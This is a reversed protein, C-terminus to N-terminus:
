LASEWLAFEAARTERLKAEVGDSLPTPLIPSMNKQKVTVHRGLRDELWPQLTEDEYRFLNDVKLEGDRVLFRHQSGLRAYPAPDDKLNELVFDDFSVGQTSNPKGKLGERHRYRYWSSLWSTPERIAAVTEFKDLDGGVGNILPELFRRFGHAPAHKVQPPSRLVMDAYPGFAGEIATSGTKPVSLLVIKQEWFVLM